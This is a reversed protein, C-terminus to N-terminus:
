DPTGTYPQGYRIFDYAQMGAIKVNFTLQAGACLNGYANRDALLLFFLASSYRFNGEARNKISKDDPFLHPSSYGSCNQVM